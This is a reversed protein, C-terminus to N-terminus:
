KPRQKENVLSFVPPVVGAVPSMYQIRGGLVGDPLREFEVEITLTRGGQFVWFQNGTAGGVVNNTTVRVANPLKIPRKTMTYMERDDGIIVLPSTSFARFQCDQDPSLNIIKLTVRTAESTREIKDIYWQVQQNFSALYVPEPTTSNPKLNRLAALQSTALTSNKGGSNQRLYEELNGIAQDINRQALQFADVREGTGNQREVAQQPPRAFASLNGARMLPMLVVLLVLASFSLLRM